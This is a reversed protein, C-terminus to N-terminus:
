NRKKEQESEVPTVQKDLSARQTGLRSRPRNKLSVSYSVSGVPDTQKFPTAGGWLYTILHTMPCKGLGIGLELRPRPAHRHRYSVFVLM